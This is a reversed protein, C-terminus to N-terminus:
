EDVVEGGKVLSPLLENLWWGTEEPEVNLKLAEIKTHRIGRVLSGALVRGEKETNTRKSIFWVRYYNRM